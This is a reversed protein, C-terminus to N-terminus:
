QRLQLTQIGKGNLFRKQKELDAIKKQIKAVAQNGEDSMGGYVIFTGETSVVKCKISENFSTPIIDVSVFTGCDVYKWDDPNEESSCGMLLAVILGLLVLKKM